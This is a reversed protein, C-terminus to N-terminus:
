GEFNFQGNENLYDMAMKFIRADEKQIVFGDLMKPFVAIAVNRMIDPLFNGSKELADYTTPALKQLIHRLNEETYKM